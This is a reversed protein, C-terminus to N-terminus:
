VRRLTSAPDVRAARRAPWWSALAAVLLFAAGAAALTAPDHSGIGYLDHALGRGAALAAGGGLALAIGVLGLADRVVLFVIQPRRGGLALRVGIERRRRAVALALVGYLGIASLLLSLAAVAGLVRGALRVPRLLRGLREALTGVETVPVVPDVSRIAALLDPLLDDAAGATRVALRADVLSPDQWYPTYVLAPAVQTRSTLARDEVVGVVQVSRGAISLSQGLPDSGPWRRDAFTRDVVAVPPSGTSDRTEISRGLALPFGFTEFYDPGIEVVEPERAAEAAEAVGSWPPLLRGLTVSEVGPLGQLREVVARTLARARGPAYGILRPRLRFTAIRDPTVDGARGANGLSRALLGAGALLVFSLAVQAIVLTGLLGPRRPRAGLSAEDRLAPVLGPRSSQLGTVLGVLLGTVASLGLAYAFLRPTPGVSPPATTPFLRAAIPGLWIALVVGAAGGFSALLVAETVSERVVRWPSAGLALRTAIERRRALSRAVMLGSLNAAAVLLVLTVAALLLGTLRLWQPRATPHVGRLPTVALGRVEERGSPPSPHAPRVRRSLLSMESQAEALTRGPALRGIMQLWTCERDAPNCWRYGTSAMSTPIWVASPEGRLVGDFGKPAVGVVTLATGNLELVTGLVDDRGGLRSRWFRHSVVAVPHAGPAGGEDPRFFRGREPRLGLVAFYDASVVSGVIEHQSGDGLRLVLPAVPYQAALGTFVETRERYDRFDPLSLPHFGAGGRTEYVGALRDPDHVPLPRLFIADVLGFIATQAGLGLALTFVALATFGPTRVLRHAAHRLDDFLPPM